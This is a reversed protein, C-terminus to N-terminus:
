AQEKHQLALTGSVTVHWSRSFNRGDLTITTIWGLSAAIAVAIANARAFDSSISFPRTWAREVVDWAEEPVDPVAAVRPSVRNPHGEHRKPNM